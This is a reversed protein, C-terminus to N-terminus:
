HLSIIRYLTWVGNTNKWTHVFKGPKSLQGPNEVNNIFQHSGMEIAGFGEIPYVEISGKVLVRTVKGCINNKLAEIIGAKSTSLGGKDHYFEISDNIMAACKDLECNNYAAFFLSDQYVIANYLDVSDPSYAASIEDKKNESVQCNTFGLLLFSFYLFLPQKIKM